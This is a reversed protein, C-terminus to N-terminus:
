NISQASVKGGSLCYKTKTDDCLYETEGELPLPLRNGASNVWGCQRAPVGMMLAFDPVSKTVVAGAAVFAYQGVEIGCVITCNAGLTAGRRVLTTKFEDKREIFARPNIVNTFVMSPGCFVEDEIIVNDFVSVNNQLKVRNGIKSKGGVYCGQGIICNDGVKAGACIHSFFWVKSGKGIVAGEDVWATEHSFYENTTM